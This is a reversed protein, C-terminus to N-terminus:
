TCAVINVVFDETVSTGEVAATITAVGPGNTSTFNTFFFGSGNTTTPNPSVSGLGPNDITFDVTTNGIPLGDCDVLIGYIFGTQGECITQNFTFNIIDCANSLCTPLIFNGGISLVRNNNCATTRIDFFTIQSLIARPDFDECSLTSSPGVCVINDVCSTGSGCFNTYNFPFGTEFPEYAEISINFSLCGTFHVADLTANAGSITGPGCPNPVDVPVTCEDISCELCSTDIAIGNVGGIINLYGPILVDTCFPVLRNCDCPRLPEQQAEFDGEGILELTTKDKFRELTEMIEAPIDQKDKKLHDILQSIKM